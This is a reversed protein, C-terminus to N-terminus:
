IYMGSGAKKLALTKKVRLAMLIVIFVIDAALCVAFFVNCRVLFIFIEGATPDREDHLINVLNSMSPHFSTNNYRATYGDGDKEFALTENEHLYNGIHYRGEETERYPKDLRTFFIETSEVNFIDVSLVAGSQATGPTYQTEIHEGPALNYKFEGCIREQQERTLSDRHTPAPVIERNYSGGLIFAVVTVAAMLVGIKNIPSNVKSTASVKRVKKEM